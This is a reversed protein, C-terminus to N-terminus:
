AMALAPVRAANIIDRSGSSLKVEAVWELGPLSLVKAIKRTKAWRKMLWVAFAGLAGGVAGSIAGWLPMPLAIAAIGFQAFLAAVAITATTLVAIVIVLNALGSDKKWYYKNIHKKIVKKQAKINTRENGLADMDKKFASDRLVAVVASSLEKDTLVQQILRIKGRTMREFGDRAKVVLEEPLQTKKWPGLLAEERGAVDLQREMKREVAWELGPLTLLKTIKNAKSNRKM